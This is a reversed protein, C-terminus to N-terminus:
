RTVGSILGELEVILEDLEGATKLEHDPVLSRAARADALAEQYRELKGLVRARTDLYLYGPAPDLLLARDILALAREGDSRGMEVWALNNLIVPDENGSDLANQLYDAAKDLEGKSYSIEGLLSWAQPRDRDQLLADELLPVARDEQGSQIYISALRIRDEYPMQLTKM